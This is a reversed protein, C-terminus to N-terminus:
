KKKAKGKAGELWWYGQYRGSQWGGAVQKEPTRQLMEELTKGAFAALDASWSGALAGGGTARASWTGTWGKETKRASWTGQQVVEGGDSLLTWSGKATNRSPGSVEGSWMGRLYQEGVSATWSGSFVHDTEQGRLRGAASLGIILSLMLLFVAPIRMASKGREQRRGQGVKGNQFM